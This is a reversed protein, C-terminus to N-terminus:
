LQDPTYFNLKPLLLVAILTVAAVMAIIPGSLAASNEEQMREAPEIAWINQKGEQDWTNGKFAGTNRLPDAAVDDRLQQLISDKTQLEAVPPDSIDTSAAQDEQAPNEAQSSARVARTRRSARLYGCGLGSRTLGAVTGSEVKRGSLGVVGVFGITRDM